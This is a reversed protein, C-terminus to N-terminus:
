EAGNGNSPAVDMIREILDHAGHEDGQQLRDLLDSDVLDYWLERRREFDPHWRAVAERLEGAIELFRGYESGFTRELRERLRVALAPAKGGTSVAIALDGRRMVSPVIFTSSPADDVVNVLVNLEASERSVQENVVPDDCSAVVLYADALDGPRYNRAVHSVRESEAMTALVPTLEPSIVRVDAGSDLLAEVKAQAVSGGGIVACRRGTLDLFV